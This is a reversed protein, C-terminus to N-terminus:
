RFEVRQQDTNERRGRESKRHEAHVADHGIRDRLALTFDPHAKREARRRARNPAQYQSLANQSAATPPPSPITM